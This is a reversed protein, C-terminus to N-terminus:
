EQARREIVTEPLRGGCGDFVIGVKLGEVGVWAKRSENSVSLLAGRLRSKM